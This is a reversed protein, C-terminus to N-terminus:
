NDNLARKMAYIGLGLCAIAAPLQIFQPPKLAECALIIGGTILAVILPKM